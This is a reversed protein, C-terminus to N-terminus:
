GNQINKEIPIDDYHVLIHNIVSFFQCKFITALLIIVLMILVYEAESSTSQVLNSVGIAITAFLIVPALAKYISKNKIM